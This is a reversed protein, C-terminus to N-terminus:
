GGGRERGVRERERDIQIEKERERKGENKRGAQKVKQRYTQRREVGIPPLKM